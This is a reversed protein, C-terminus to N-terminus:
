PMDKTASKIAERLKDPMPTKDPLDPTPTYQNASRTPENRDEGNAFNKANRTWNRWTALWDLKVGKQGPAALFHDKFKDAESKIWKVTHGQDVAWQGWSKPLKWNPKLRTARARKEAKTNKVRRQKQHTVSADSQRRQAAMTTYGKPKDILGIEIFRVIDPKDDLYCLKQILEADNPIEGEEDAALIWISVLQGKEADSLKAWKRNRLMRRHLKIWPPQGRDTRYSQWRDWNSVKLTTM